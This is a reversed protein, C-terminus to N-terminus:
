DFTPDYPIGTAPIWTRGAIFRSVTFPRVVSPRAVVHYGAWRVRRSMRSGAGTNRFEAYYLTDLAFGGNFPLWGAPDILGAIYSQMYVTRSYQMWPRGLYSRVGSRDRALDAAARITCRQIVIGTNQNPDSRGQATIVDAEGHRPLRALINCRQLVAAANGFVFDITGYIDCERYFQRQSYVYLTDQYGEISCRYFASRDSASM